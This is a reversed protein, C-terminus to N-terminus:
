NVLWCGKGLSEPVKSIVMQLQNFCVILRGGGGGWFFSNSEGGM